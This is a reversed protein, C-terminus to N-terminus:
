SFEPEEGFGSSIYCSTEYHELCHLVGFHVHVKEGSFVTRTWKPTRCPSIYDFSRTNCIDVVKPSSCSNDRSLTDTNQFTHVFLMVRERNGHKLSLLLKNVLLFLSLLLTRGAWPVYTAGRSRATWSKTGLIEVNNLASSLSSSFMQLSFPM